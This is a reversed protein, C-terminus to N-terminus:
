KGYDDGGEVVDAVADVYVEIQRAVDEAILDPAPIDGYAASKRADNLDRLLREVDPLGFKKHLEVAIDAKEWHKKSTKIGVQLAAAELAAELCYFGYLSLDDWDTPDDWASRVRELHHRALALKEASKANTAVSWKYVKEGM